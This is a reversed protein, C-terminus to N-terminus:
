GRTINGKESLMIAVPKTREFQSLIIILIVTIPVSLIMGTIGWIAGWISLSLITVLPSINMSSGMLKPELFNGVLLQILGVISLVLISPLFEGFQFLCFIAPFITGVLSGITPIFNLIFILFAWFEPADVGIMWLAAYSLGGTVLSVLTKLRLYNSVSSGIKELLMNIRENQDKEVFIAQLKPRFNDEELLVFVAYLTIMFANSIIDTLSAFLSRLIAGFQLNGSYGKIKEKVDVKLLDDLQGIIADLNPEYKDLSQALFNINSTIINTVFSLATIILALSLLHKSWNPLYKKIFPIKDLGNKIERGIFWLLMGLIFPVLISQGYILLFITSLIIIFVAATKQLNM